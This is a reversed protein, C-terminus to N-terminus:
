DNLDGKKMRDCWTIVDNIPLEWQEWKYITTESITAYKLHCIGESPILWVHLPNLDERNDYAICLFYDAIENQAIEFQWGLATMNRNHKTSAKVDIKFGKGCLFDYGPNNMPMRVVNHFKYSLVTESVHVGLYLSCEKNLNYPVIGKDLRFQARKELICAICESKYGGKRDTRTYFESVHKILGCRGQCQRFEENIKASPKPVIGKARRREEERRKADFKCIRAHGDKENKNLYFEDLSKSKGCDACVKTIEIM